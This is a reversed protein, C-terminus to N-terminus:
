RLVARVPRGAHRESYGNMSITYLSGSDYRLVYAYHPNEDYGRNFNDDLSSSWYSLVDSGYHDRGEYEERYGAAPLYIIAGNRKSTGVCVYFNFNGESFLTREWTCEMALENMEEKTPMRWASGWNVTAADDEAELVTKNDVIGYESNSCYKTIKGYYYHAADAARWKYNTWYYRSKTQTEGWAYKNGFGTPKTAGINYTAWKTGSPLGLDVYTYDGEKGSVTVGDVIQSPTEITEEYDVKTVNELDYKVIQGDNTRVYMYTVAHAAFAISAMAIASIILKKM